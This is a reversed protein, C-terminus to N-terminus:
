MCADTRFSAFKEIFNSFFVYLNYEFQSKRNAPWILTFYDFWNVVTMTLHRKHATPVVTKTTEIVDKPTVVDCYFTDRDTCTSTSTEHLMSVVWAIARVGATHVQWMWSRTSKQGNFVLLVHGHRSHWVRVCNVGAVGRRRCTKVTDALCAAFTNIKEKEFNELKVLAARASWDADDLLVQSNKGFSVTICEDFTPLQLATTAHTSSYYCIVLLIRHFMM